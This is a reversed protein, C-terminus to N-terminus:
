VKFIDISNPNHFIQTQVIELSEEEDSNLSWKKGYVIDQIGGIKFHNTIKQFTDKGSTNEKDVTIYGVGQNITKIETIGSFSDYSYPKGSIIITPIEKALNVIEGTAILDKAIQILDKGNEVKIGFYIQKKLKANLFGMNRIAQEMTREENDTIIKDVYIEIQYPVPSQIKNKVNSERRKVLGEPNVLTYTKTIYDNMSDFIAQGNKTREPHPMLSLVNGDTNCVGALNLLAGNPNIPFKNIIEGNKDCYKFLTQENQELVNLLEEDITTFRGEGHAVPIKMIHDHGFNNFASRGKTAPTKIYVWDNYFGTGLINGNEDQRKNEALAMEVHSSDLNPILKAELLIQAGNCIGIVPKGKGSEEKIKKLLTNKSAIIGSRGRDEYSFGGPIFFGDFKSYDVEENWRILQTDMGSRGLARIAELECNTGPFLIVAIKPTM